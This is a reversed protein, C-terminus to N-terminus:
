NPGPLIALSTAGTPSYRRATFASAFDGRPNHAPNDVLLLHAEGDPDRPLSAFNADSWLDGNVAIFPADGLWQLANGMGGGTELPTTGEYAYHIRLGWRSGDGLVQPFQEALWSTNVVVEDIGIASFKELHWEILRKGGVSLLPKPTSDTLPRMREGLGAALILARM